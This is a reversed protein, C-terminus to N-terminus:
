NGIYFHHGSLPLDHTRYIQCRFPLRPRQGKRCRSSWGGRESPLTPDVWPLSFGGPHPLAQWCPGPDIGDPVPRWPKEPREDIEPITTIPSNSNPIPEASLSRTQAQSITKPQKKLTAPTSKGLLELVPKRQLLRIGAITFTLLLLLIVSFFVALYIPQLTINPQTGAPTPLDSFVASTKQLAYKFAPLIGAIVGITGFLVLPLLLQFLVSKKPTGLARLIAYVGRQQNIYLFNVLGLAVILVLTFVLFGSFASRRLPEVIKWFSDGNNEVFVIGIGLETLPAKLENIFTSQNRSSDLVFSYDYEILHDQSYAVATPIVSNPIYAWTTHITTLEPLYDFIGVIEFSEDHTPFSRWNQWDKKTIYGSYPNQLKRMTLSITDGLKLNRLEAFDAQIVIAKRKDLEDQHNLWRGEVLFFFRSSEQMQPMASMDSTGFILLAHQNENLVEFENKLEHLDLDEFNLGSVQDIPLYWLGKGDLPKIQLTSSANQWNQEVRFGSKKWGRILYSQGIEMAEISAVASENGDFLFLFGVVRGDALDEPYSALVKSVHFNLSYGIAETKDQGLHRLIERKTILLGSFWMDGLYYGSLQEFESSSSGRIDANYIDKMVGSTARRRDEYALFRHNRVLEAGPTLDLEQEGDGVLKGISRYYSGIRNTERQVVIFEIVKSSFAFSILGLTIILLMSQMPQRFFTILPIIKKM